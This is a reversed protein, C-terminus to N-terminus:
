KDKLGADKRSGVSCAQVEFDNGGNRMDIHALLTHALTRSHM